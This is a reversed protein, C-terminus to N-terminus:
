NQVSLNESIPLKPYQRKLGGQGASPTWVGLVVFFRLFSAKRRFDVCKPVCVAYELTRRTDVLNCSNTQSIIIVLLQIRYGQKGWLSCQLVSHTDVLSPFPVLLHIDRGSDLYLLWGDLLDM